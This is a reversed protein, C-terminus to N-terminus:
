DRVRETEKQIEAPGWWWPGIRIARDWMEDLVRDILRKEPPPEPNQEHQRWVEDLSLPKAQEAM